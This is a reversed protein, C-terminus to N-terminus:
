SATRPPFGMAARVRDDAEEVTMMRGAEMDAIGNAISENVDQQYLAKKMKELIKADVIVFTQDTGEGRCEVGDPHSEAQKTQEPTLKIM